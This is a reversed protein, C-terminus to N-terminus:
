IQGAQERVENGVAPLSELWAEADEKAIRTSRGIKRFPLRGADHERYITSRCIGYMKSFEPITLLQKM